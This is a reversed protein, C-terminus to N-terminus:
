YRSRMVTKQHKGRPAGISKGLSAIADLTATCGSHAKLGLAIKM